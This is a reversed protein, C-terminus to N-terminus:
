ATEAPHLDTIVNRIEKLTAELDHIAEDIRAVADPDNILSAATTLRLVARLIQGVVTAQLDRAIRDRESMLEIQLSLEEARKRDTEDRTVKAFGKLDGDADVIATIVVNAWFTSADKRVRWGLDRYQGLRVAAALERAPKGDMVDAASYFVTFSRGIIEDPTYGKIRQAGSNWSAVTGDPELMFIAYEDVADVLLEFRGVLQVASSASPLM